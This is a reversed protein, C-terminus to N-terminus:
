QTGFHEKLQEELRNLIQCLSLFDLGFNRFGSPQDKGENLFDAMKQLLKNGLTTSENTTRLLVEQDMMDVDLVSLQCYM